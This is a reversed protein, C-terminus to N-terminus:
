EGNGAVVILCWYEGTGSYSRCVNIIREAALGDGGPSDVFLVLGNELDADQLINEIVDADSDSVGIPYKFSTFYTVVTRGFADELTQILPKRTEHSQTIEDQVRSFVLDRDSM